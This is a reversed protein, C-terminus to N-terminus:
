MKGQHGCETCIFLATMAEDAGQMQRLEYRLTGQCKPCAFGTKRKRARELLVDAKAWGDPKPKPERRILERAIDTFDPFWEWGWKKALHMRENAFIVRCLSAATTEAERFDQKLTHGEDPSHEQTEM